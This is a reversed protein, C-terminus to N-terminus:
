RLTMPYSSPRTKEGFRDPLLSIPRGTRRTPSVRLITSPPAPLLAASINSQSM